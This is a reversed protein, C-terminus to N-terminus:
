YVISLKCTRRFSSDNRNSREKGITKYIARFRRKKTVSNITVCSDKWKENLSSNPAFSLRTITEKGFIVLEYVIDEEEDTVVLAAVLETEVPEVKLPEDVIVDEPALLLLEELTDPAVLLPEELTEELTEELEVTDVLEPIIVVIVEELVLEPYCFFTEKSIKEYRSDFM